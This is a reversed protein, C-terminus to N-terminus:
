LRRWCSVSGWFAVHTLSQSRSSCCRYLPYLLFSLYLPKYCIEFHENETETMKDTGRWLRALCSQVQRHSMPSNHHNAQEQAVSCVCVDLVALSGRGQHECGLPAVCVDCPQQQLPTLTVEGQSVLHCQPFGLGMSMKSGINDVLGKVLSVILLKTKMKVAALTLFTTNTHIM